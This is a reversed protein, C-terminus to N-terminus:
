TYWCVISTLLLPIHCPIETVFLREKTQSSVGNPISYLDEILTLLGRRRNQQEIVLFRPLLFRLFITQWTAVHCVIKQQQEDSSSHNERFQRTQCEYRAIGSHLTCPPGVFSLEQLGQHLNPLLLRINVFKGLVNRAELYWIYILVVTIEVQRNIKQNSNLVNYPLKALLDRRRTQQASVLSRPLM